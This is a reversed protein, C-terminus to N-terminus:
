HKVTLTHSKNFLVRKQYNINYCKILIKGTDKCTHGRVRNHVNWQYQDCRWDNVKDFNKDSSYLFLYGGHPKCPPQSITQFRDKNKLIHIAESCEIANPNNALPAGFIQELETVELHLHRDEISEDPDRGNFDTSNGKAQGSTLDQDPVNDEEINSVDSGM